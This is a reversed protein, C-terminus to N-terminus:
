SNPRNLFDRLANCVEEVQDPYKDSLYVYLDQHSIRFQRKIAKVFKKDLKDGRLEVDLASPLVFSGSNYDELIKKEISQFPICYTNKKRGSRTGEYDGDLIAMVNEESGFFGEFVNKQRLQAVNDGGGVPIIQFSYFSPINHRAILFKFFGELVPDETLIYRDWGKFGFLVSKVYNYSVPYTTIVDDECSMYYLEGDNMTRMIAMSHTTFVMSISEVQCFKRLWGILRSQAAADLSIDIEDIVILKAPGKIKRYLSILFFEGSSLHDERVYRDDKLPMIYYNNKGIRVEKLDSFKNDGYVDALLLILEEPVSYDGIMVATRIDSDASSISQYGNFRQGWPIPLEVEIQKKLGQPFVDKSNLDEINHDYEFHYAAGDCIYSIKSGPKIAGPQAMKSFTDAIKLNRISKILTTKGVGNKGVICTLGNRNLGLDIRLDNIHQVNRVEVFLQM